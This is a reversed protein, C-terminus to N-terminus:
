ILFLHKIVSNGLYHQVSNYMEFTPVSFFPQSNQISLMFLLFLFQLLFNLLLYTLGFVRSPNPNPVKHWYVYTMLEAALLGSM